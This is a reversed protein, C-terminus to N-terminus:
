EKYGRLLRDLKKWDKAKQKMGEEVTRFDVNELVLRRVASYTFDRDLLGRTYGEVVESALICQSENPQKVVDKDEDKKVYIISPSGGVGVNLNAAGNTAEILKVLGEVTQIKERQERPLREVYGSLVKDSEDAGSGISM